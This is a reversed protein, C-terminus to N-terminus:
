DGVTAGQRPIGGLLALIAREPADDPDLWVIRPDRRFWAWQRRAKRWHLREAHRCSFAKRGVFPNLLAEWYWAATETQAKVHLLFGPALSFCEEDSLPGKQFCM